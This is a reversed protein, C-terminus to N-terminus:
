DKYNSLRTLYEQIGDTVTGQLYSTSTYYPLKPYLKTRKANRGHNHKSRRCKQKRKTKQRDHQEISIEDQSPIIRYKRKATASTINSARQAVAEMARYHTQLTDIDCLDELFKTKTETSCKSNNRTDKYGKRETKKLRLKKPRTKGNSIGQSQLGTGATNEADALTSSCM